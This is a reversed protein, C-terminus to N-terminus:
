WVRAVIRHAVEDGDVSRTTVIVGAAVRARESPPTIRLTFVHPDATPTLEVHFAPNDSQADSVALNENPALTVRIVRPELPQDTKWYVFRESFHVVERMQVHLVLTARSIKGASVTTVEIPVHREGLQGRAQFLVVLKGKQGPAVPTPDPQPTVCGCDAHIDRIVVPEPGTNTFSYEATAVRDTTKPTIQQQASTWEVAASVRLGIFALAAFVVRSLTYNFASYAQPTASGSKPPAWNSLAEGAPHDRLAPGGVGSGSAGSKIM